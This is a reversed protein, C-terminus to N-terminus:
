HVDRHRRGLLLLATHSTQLPVGKKRARTRSAHSVTLGAVCLLFFQGGAYLSTYTQWNRESTYVNLPKMPRVTGMSALVADRTARCMLVVSPWFSAVLRLLEDPLTLMNVQNQSM